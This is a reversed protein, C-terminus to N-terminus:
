ARCIHSSRRDLIMADLINGLVTLCLLTEDWLIEEWLLMEDWLLCKMGCCLMEERWFIGGCSDKSVM